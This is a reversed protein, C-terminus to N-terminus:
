LRVSLLRALFQLRRKRNLRLLIFIQRVIFTAIFSAFMASVFLTIPYFSLILQYIRILSILFILLAAVVFFLPKNYGGFWENTYFVAKTASVGLILGAIVLVRFAPSDIPFVLGHNLELIALMFFIFLSNLYTLYHSLRGHFIENVKYALTLPTSKLYRWLIKGTFHIATGVFGYIMFINTVVLLDFDDVPIVEIRPNNLINRVVVVWGIYMLLPFVLMMLWDSLPINKLVKEEFRKRRHSLVALLAVIVIVILGSFM